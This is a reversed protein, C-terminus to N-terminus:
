GRLAPPERGFDRRYIALARQTVDQWFAADETLTRRLSKGSYHRMFRFLDRRTLGIDMASFYISGVDKVVWRRPTRHRLQARHLDVLFLRPQPEAEAAALGGSIDLLFHCLYLDRHNIGNTHITRAIEAVTRTLRIRFGAEPPKEPWRACLDELTETDKLEETILFSLQSAPNLGRRGFGVPTLTDVGLERLRRLALWENSAGIIPLRFQLLNKIVEGWGVGQHLKLFFTEPGLEFRL